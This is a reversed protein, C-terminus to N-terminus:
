ELRIAYLIFRDAGPNVRYIAIISMQDLKLLRSKPGIEIASLDFKLTTRQRPALTRFANFRDVNDTTSGRDRLHIELDLPQPGPNELDVALKKYGRWDPVFSRIVVGPIPGSRLQVSLGDPGQSILVDEDETM